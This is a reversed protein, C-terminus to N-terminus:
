LVWALLWGAGMGALLAVIAAGIMASRIEDAVKEPTPHEGPYLDM